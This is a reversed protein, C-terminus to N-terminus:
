GFLGSIYIIINVQLLYQFFVWIHTYKYVIKKFYEAQQIDHKAAYKFLQYSFVRRIDDINFAKQGINHSTM